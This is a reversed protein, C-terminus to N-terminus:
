RTFAYWAGIRFDRYSPEYPVARPLLYRGSLADFTFSVSPPLGPLRLRVGPGNEATNAWGFRRADATLNFNWLLQLATASSGITYGIRNQAYGITDKDFRSVFVGDLQTNFFAGSRTAALSRGFTRTWFVGGRYDPTSHGAAPGRFALAQGGEAWGTIGKWTGSVGIGVIASNESLYIPSSSYSVETSGRADGTFRTSAYLRLNTGPLKFETKLQSYSFLDKWRSSYMPLTWLSTRFRALGPRLNDYARKAEKATAPEPSRRALNFWGIATHDDKLINHVWGLKLMVDFDIPNDEHAIKLYKLADKLYGADLSKQALKKAELAPQQRNLETRKRLAKPLSLAERVRDALEDDDSKLVRDLLPMAASQDKRALLLFGLQAVSLLDQPQTEVIQRFENEADAKQGMALHLYALERRLAVNNGDLALAARFEYVFPYRTPLLARAAEAARPEAGRSAALLAANAQEARGFDKWVRGLDLLLEPIDRRLRWALEYHKAALALADRQEALRALEQHASFNAPDIEVARQWREMASGLENDINRFAQEASANGTKRIRDFVRRATAQQKTEYCIFAYELAVHTDAPDLRMAEGFQDRALEREGIKLYTYGIEKRISAREPALRAATQFHELAQDYHKERLAAYAKELATYSPDAAHLVGALALLALIWNGQM